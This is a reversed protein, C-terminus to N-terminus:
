KRRWTAPSFLIIMPMIELRGFLMDLSLVIKSFLSYDAYNRTPGVAGFGPGINNLCAMVGSFNTEFSFGSGFTFKDFSVLLVSFILVAIYLAVYNVASKVTEESVPEGDMRVTNVSRPHLMHRIERVINKFVIIIRSVKVGGATSGACSGVFMLFILLSKTLAPWVDFDATSFGSTSIISTTQFFAKRICDELGSSMNYTQVCVIVTAVFAISLYVRLEESKLVERWKRILLLFFLNFNIGFILMFVAIIWEAAPNHYGAISDNMVSFGGTGATGFTTVLADYLPMRAILLAIVETLTLGIYIAYLIIATHRLKPVLKGKTPGPVEARLLYIANGGQPLIALMFVLVGMGGIWHTFSRWFLIGKPLGEIVRLISAGTTTFGSCTEFFADVYNPIAGSFVFPLAGFASMLLWSAAVTVFGEKAYIKTNKPKQLIGPLAAVVLAGITIVFPLVSEGYIVAVFLPILLIAAELLLIVCLLYLLMRYNM